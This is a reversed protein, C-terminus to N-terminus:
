KGLSSVRSFTGEARVNGGFVLTCDETDSLEVRDPKFRATVTCKPEEKSHLTAVGDRIPVVDQISGTHPAGLAGLATVWLGDFSVNYLAGEKIVKVTSWLGSGAYSWYDGEFSSPWHHTALANAVLRKNFETRAGPPAISLWMRAKAVQGAHLNALALNNYAIETVSDCTSESKGSSAVLCNERDEESHQMQQQYFAIASEYDHREYAVDGKHGCDATGECQGGRASVVGSLLFSVSTAIGLIRAFFRKSM